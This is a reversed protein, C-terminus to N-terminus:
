LREVSVNQSRETSGGECHERLMGCSLGFDLILHCARSKIAPTM